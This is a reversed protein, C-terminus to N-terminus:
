WTVPLAQLGYVISFSRFPVDEIALVSRLGPFRRLLAPYAIRMEMRALPAGLCHHIGHGFAVHATSDRNIDFRDLDDGLAADRNASALLCVLMEGKKIPEGALVTDERAFRPVGTHVISLYRMLEEIAQDVVGDDAEDSRLLGAQDPHQLLLLTGLGLMNSTTEHGAILLVDAIGVLEDNTLDEGHEQILMGIMDEDPEVRKRAILEAMYARSTDIAAVRDSESNTMDLRQNSRAQFDARDAYPVGLLECIVLSPIPLAFEAVLDAPAGTREMSDLREAVIAEIRPRLRRIRRATFEPTLMRRLRTHEPPDQSLLVNRPDPPRNPDTNSFRAPDGLVQRVEAHRTILCMTSHGIPWPLEVRSIPQEARLQGLEPVPDFAERRLYFPTLPTPTDTM